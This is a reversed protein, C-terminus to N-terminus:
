VRVDCHFYLRMGTSEDAIQMSHMKWASERGKNNHGVEIEYIEGVAPGTVHFM